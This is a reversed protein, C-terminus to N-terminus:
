NATPTREVHDIVLVDAPVKQRGLKLGLQEQVATVLDPGTDDTEPRRTNWFLEFDFKGTLGTDNHVPAELQLALWDAIADVDWDPSKWRARGNVEAMGERPVVPYGDSDTKSGFAQPTDPEPTEIHPRLKPGGKGVGLSYGELEKRERHVRLKFRDILLNRFMARFQEKTAGKALTAAVQYRESTLWEPGVLQYDEVAYAQCILRSLAVNHYDIRTPDNTGPGGRSWTVHGGGPSVDAPRISAAEFTPGDQALCAAPLAAFIWIQTVAALVCIGGARYPSNRKPDRPSVLTGM